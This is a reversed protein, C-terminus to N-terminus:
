NVSRILAACGKVGLVRYLRMVGRYLTLFTSFASHVEMLKTSFQEDNAPISRQLINCTLFKSVTTHLLALM